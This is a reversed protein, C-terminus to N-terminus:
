PTPEPESLIRRMGRKGLATLAAKDGDVTVAGFRRLVKLARVTDRDHSRRGTTLQQHTADDLVYRATM